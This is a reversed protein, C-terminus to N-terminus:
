PKDVCNIITTQFWPEPNWMSQDRMSDLRRGSAFRVENHGHGRDRIAIIRRYWSGACFYTRGVEIPYSEGM